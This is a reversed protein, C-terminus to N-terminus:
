DKDSEDETAEKVIVNVEPLGVIISKVFSIIGAMLTASVTFRWNVDAFTVVIPSAAVIGLFTQGMTHLARIISAKLLSLVIEKKFMGFIM